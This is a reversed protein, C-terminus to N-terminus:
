DDDDDDQRPTESEGTAGVGEGPTTYASAAGHRYVLEGGSHGVMWGAPLLVLTAGTAALRAFRGLQNKGLGALTLALTAASLALFLNAREEHTELPAESVVREVREEQGEGTEVALWASGALLAAGAVVGLWVTRIPYGRRALLFAGGAILPLLLTLAIPLHVIAPHLPEPLM